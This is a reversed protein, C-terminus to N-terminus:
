KGINKTIKFMFNSIRKIVVDNEHLSDVTDLLADSADMPISNKKIFTLIDRHIEHIGKRNNEYERKVSQHKMVEVIELGIM